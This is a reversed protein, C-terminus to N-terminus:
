PIEITEGRGLRGDATAAWLRGIHHRCLRYSWLMNPPALMQLPGGECTEDRWMCGWYDEPIGPHEDPQIERLTAKGRSPAPTYGPVGLGRRDAGKDIGDHNFYEHDNM